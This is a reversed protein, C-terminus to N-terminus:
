NPVEHSVEAANGFPWLSDDLADIDRVAADPFRERLESGLGEVTGVAVAVFRESSLAGALAERVESPTCREILAPIEAIEPAGAGLLEHRLLPYIVDFASAVSLPQRNLLYSRAFDITADDLEAVTRYLALELELCALADGRAPASHLVWAGPLTGHRSFEVHATYSWGREDRVERTFPSTFTGAFATTGLWFPILRPDDGSLGFTALRLQVQDHEPLDALLFRPGELRPLAPRVAGEAERPFARRLASVTETLAEVDVDGAAVAILRGRRVRTRYVDRLVPLAITEIDGREGHPRRALPSGSLLARRLWIAALTDEDDRESELGDAIEQRLAEHEGARLGPTVLAERLLALTDRQFRSLCSIRFTTMDGYVSSYVTSGMREFRAHLEERELAETGRLLLEAMMRHAGAAGPPDDRGGGEFAFAIRCSPLTRDVACLVADDGLTIREVHELASM